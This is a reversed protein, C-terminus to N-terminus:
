SADRFEMIEVMNWFEREKELMDAQYFPDPTVEIYTGNLGDFSYYYALPAKCVFIQHQLQCYHHPPVIGDLTMQHWKKGNCKIELISGDEARGDLSAAMFEYGPETCEFCASWYDQGIQKCFRQRATEELDMGRIMAWNLGPGDKLGVKQCWLDFPKVYPSIGLVIPSDSAGLHTRRWNHWDPTGQMADFRKM